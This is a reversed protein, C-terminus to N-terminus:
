NKCILGTERQIEGAGDPTPRGSAAAPFLTSCGNLAVLRQPQRKAFSSINQMIAMWPRITQDRGRNREEEWADVMRGGGAASPAPERRPEFSRGCRRRRRHLILESMPKRCRALYVLPCLLELDPTQAQQRQQLRPQFRLQESGRCSVSCM